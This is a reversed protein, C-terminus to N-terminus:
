RSAQPTPTRSSASGTSGAVRAAFASAPVTVTGRPATLPVSYSATFFPGMAPSWHGVGSVVLEPKGTDRVGTLDYRVQVSYGAAVVPQVVPALAEVYTGDTPGFTLQRTTSALVHSGRQAEFTLTVQRDATAIVPLGAAAVMETPTLRISPVDSTFQQSGIRLAYTVGAQATLGTVDAAVTVPGVLGEGPQFGSDLEPGALDIYGPDTAEYYSGGLGGLTQRHAVSLRVIRPAAGDTHGGRAQAVMAQVTATVDVQPGVQLPRDIRPPTLVALGTRELLTRVQEPSPHQGTLRATQLV